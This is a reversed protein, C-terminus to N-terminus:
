SERVESGTALQNKLKLIESQLEAIQLDKEGEQRRRQKVDIARHIRRSEENLQRLEQEESQSLGKSARREYLENIRESHQMRLTAKTAYKLYTDDLEEVEFVQEYIEAATAGVFDRELKEVKFGSEPSGPDCRRLVAVEGRWCGAVFLPSHASVIFQVRPFLEKLLSPVKQQWTPHLHADAEDIIVIASGSQVLGDDPTRSFSRLYSRILGFMALVSLTGQSAYQIPLPEQNGETFVKIVFNTRGRRVISAFRFKFGTLRLVCHELFQFVPLDLRQGHEWYDLCIEYLFGQIVSVYPRHYLFHHAGYARLDATDGDGPGVTEQSRDLFRSDPIALLPVKGISESFRVANRRILEDQGSRKLRVEIVSDASEASEKFFPATAEEDRQLLGALARLILSKGYGNRGLLVNVGPQLVWDARLFLTVNGAELREVVFTAELNREFDEQDKRERLRRVRDFGEFDDESLSAIEGALHDATVEQVRRLFRRLQYVGFAAILILLGFSLYVISSALLDDKKDYLSRELRISGVVVFASGVLVLFSILVRYFWRSEEAVLLSSLAGGMSKTSIPEDSPKPM